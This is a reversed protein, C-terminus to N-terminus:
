ETMVMDALNPDSMFCERKLDDIIYHVVKSKICFKDELAELFDETEKINRFICEVLYDYGNNIKYLSNINFSNKLYERLEDKDKKSAKLMIHTKTHFGLKPFDILPVSKIIVGKDYNRLKDFITSVPIATRRSLATLKMRADQRLYCMLQIDKKTIM